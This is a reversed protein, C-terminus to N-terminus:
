SGVEPRHLLVKVSLGDTLPLDDALSTDLEILVRYPLAAADLAAPPLAWNEARFLPQAREAASGLGVDVFTILSAGLLLLEVQVPQRRHAPRPGIRRSRVRVKCAPVPDDRRARWEKGDAM